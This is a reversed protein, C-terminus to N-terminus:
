NIITWTRYMAHFEPGTCACARRFSTGACSAKFMRDVRDFIGEIRDEFGESLVSMGFSLFAMHMGRYIIGLGIM